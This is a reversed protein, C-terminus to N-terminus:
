LNEIKVGFPKKFFIIQTGRGNLDQFRKSTKVFTKVCNRTNKLALYWTQTENIFSSMSKFQMMNDISLQQQFHKLKGQFANPQM